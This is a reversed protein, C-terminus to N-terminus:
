AKRPASASPRLRDTWALRRADGPRTARKDASERALRRAEVLRELVARLFIPSARRQPTEMMGAMMVGVADVVRTPGRGIATLLAADFVTEDFSLVEGNEMFRLAGNESSLRLWLGRAAEREQSTMPRAQALLRARVLARAPIMPLPQARRRGDHDTEVADSADVLDIPAQGRLTALRALGVADTADHRTIWATVHPAQKAREWFLSDGRLVDDAKPIRCGLRLWRTRTEMFTEGPGELWGESLDDRPAIVDAEPSDMRALADYLTARSEGHFVIHLSPRAASM